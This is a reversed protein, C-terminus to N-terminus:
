ESRIEKTSEAVVVVVVVETHTKWQSGIAM